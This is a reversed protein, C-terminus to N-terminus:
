FRLSSTSAHVALCLHLICKFFYSTILSLLHPYSLPPYFLPLFPSLSSTTLLSYLLFLLLSPPIYPPNSHIFADPVCRIVPGEMLDEKSLGFRQMLYNDNGEQDLMGSTVNFSGVSATGALDAALANWKILFEKKYHGNPLHFHVM